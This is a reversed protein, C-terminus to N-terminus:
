HAAAPAVDRKGPHARWDAVSELRQAMPHISLEGWDQRWGVVEDHRMRRNVWGLRQATRITDDLPLPVDTRRIRM